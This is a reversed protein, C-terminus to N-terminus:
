FVAATTFFACWSTILYLIRHSSYAFCIPFSPLSYNYSYDSPSQMLCTQSFFPCPKCWSQITFTLCIIFITLQEYNFLLLVSYLLLFYSYSTCPKYVSSLLFILTWWKFKHIFRWQITIQKVFQIDSELLYYGYTDM